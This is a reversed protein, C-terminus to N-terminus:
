YSMIFCSLPLSTVIDNNHVVRFGDIMFDFMECFELNGVRSSGFNYFYLINYDNEM